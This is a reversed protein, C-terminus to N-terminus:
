NVTKLIIKKDGNVEFIWKKFPLPGFMGSANNSFGYGETPMGFRGTEMKGSLNEDHFYRCAYKGAKLDGITIICKGGRISDMKEAVTQQLTDMLQLLVVGKDNRLDTIEIELKYQALSTASIATFCALLICTKLNM